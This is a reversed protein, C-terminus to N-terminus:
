RIYRIARHHGASEATHGHGALKVPRIGARATKRRVANRGGVAAPAAHVKVGHQPHPRTLHTIPARSRQRPAVTVRRKHHTEAKGPRAHPPRSIKVTKHVNVPRTAVPNRRAQLMQAERVTLKGAKLDRVIADDSYHAQAARVLSPFTVSSIVIVASLLVGRMRHMGRIKMIGQKGTEKVSLFM